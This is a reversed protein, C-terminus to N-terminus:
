RQRNLQRRIRIIAVGREPGSQIEGEFVGFVTSSAHGLQIQDLQKLLGAGEAANPGVTVIDVGLTHGYDDPKDALYAGHRTAVLYGKVQVIRGSCATPNELVLRATTCTATNSRLQACSTALLLTTVLIRNV